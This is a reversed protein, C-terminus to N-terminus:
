VNTNLDRSLNLCALIVQIGTIVPKSEYNDSQLYLESSSGLSAGLQSRFQSSDSLGLVQFKLEIFIVILCLYLFTIILALM